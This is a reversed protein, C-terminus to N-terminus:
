VTQETALQAFRDLGNWCEEFRDRSLRHGGFFVDEFAVMTREVLTMLGPRARLERLYQRNTKGRELVIRGKRDLEVLQYSFLYIIAEAFNGAQFYRRAQDLLEDATGAVRVPLAEIRAEDLEQASRGAALQADSVLRARDKLRRFIFWAVIALFAIALIWLFWALPSFDPWGWGYSSSSNSSRPRWDWEWPEPLKVARVDDSASDYWNYDVVNRGLAERATAIAAEGDPNAVAGPGAEAPQGRSVPACWSMLVLMVLAALRSVMASAARKM